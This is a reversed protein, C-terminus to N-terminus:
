LRNDSIWRAAAARLKAPSLITGAEQIETTTFDGVIVPISAFEDTRTVRIRGGYQRFELGEVDWVAVAPSRLARATIKRSM